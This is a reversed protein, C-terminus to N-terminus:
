TRPEIRKWADARERFRAKWADYSAGLLEAGAVQARVESVGEETEEDPSEATACGGGIAVTVALPSKKYTLTLTGLALGRTSCIQRTAFHGRARTM